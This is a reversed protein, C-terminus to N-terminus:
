QFSYDTISQNNYDETKAEWEKQDKKSLKDWAIARQKSLLSLRSSMLSPDEKIQEDVEEKNGDTEMGYFTAANIRNKKFMNKTTKSGGTEAVVVVKSGVIETNLGVNQATTSLTSRQEQFSVLTTPQHPPQAHQEPTVGFQFQQSEPENSTNLNGSNM